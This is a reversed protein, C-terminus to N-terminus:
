IKRKRAIAAHLLAITQIYNVINKLTRKTKIHIEVFKVVINGKNTHDGIHKIVKTDITHKQVNRVLSYLNKIINVQVIYEFNQVLIPKTLVIM